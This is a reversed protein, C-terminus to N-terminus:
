KRGNRRGTYERGTYRRGSQVRHHRGGGQIDGSSSKNAEEGGEDETAMETKAVGSGGRQIKKGILATSQNKKRVLKKNRNRKNDGSHRNQGDSHRRELVNYFIRMPLLLPPPLM